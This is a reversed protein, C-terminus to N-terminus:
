INLFEEINKSDDTVLVTLIQATGIHGTGTEKHLGLLQRNRQAKHRPSLAIIACPLM